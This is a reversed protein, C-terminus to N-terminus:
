ATVQKYFCKPEMLQCFSNKDNNCEGIRPCPMVRSNTSTFKEEAAKIAADWIDAVCEYKSNCLDDPVGCESCNKHEAAM